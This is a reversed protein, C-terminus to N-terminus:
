FLLPLYKPREDYPAAQGSAVAYLREHALRAAAALPEYPRHCIDIFGINYAEGDFRGQAPEDYLTFWHAGVCWPQAAADELYVRYAQGRAAQDKVHGIGSGPLGVDLAGFHWEGIIIPKGTNDSFPALERRVRESYGNVGIVDFATMGRQAWLPPATYYRGGLNLHRPDVKRCADSLTDFFRAVVVTSFEELDAQAERTFRRAWAGEAVEAFTLGPMAWARALAEDSGHRERLFDAFARRTECARCGLLVGQMLPEDVFGWQPENMLFYGIFAPDDATERLPQAYDECDAAFGAHFVDPMDRFVIPARRFQPELQRVYPFGARRAVEWSSWNGFTNFGIRRMEAVTAVAWCSVYDKGFARMFNAQQFCFLRKRGAWDPTQGFAEGFPGGPQPLWAHAAEIDEFSAGGRIGVCDPGTSWFPHGDPDVLWWRRGDHHTRFVGSAEFSVDAWGGWRSYSAPWSANGAEAHQRQLRATVEATSRSKGPWDRLAYQGMEDILKGKPLIPDTLLPPEDATAILPTMCWRVPNADKREVKLRLRDVRALDVRDRCCIINKWAGERPYARQHQDVLNLPLRVRAQCQNLFGFWVGFVPGAEGEALELMFIATIDGDLLFDATLFRAGALAGQAFRYELGDGAAKAAHWRAGPIPTEDAKFEIGGLSSSPQLTLPLAQATM